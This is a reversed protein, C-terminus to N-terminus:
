KVFVTTAKSGVRKVFIGNEPNDVRIGQLNYYVAEADTDAAVSAIGSTSIQLTKNEYNFIFTVDEFDQAVTCNSGQKTLEYVVGAEMNSAGGYDITSWNADAVKFEDGVSVSVGSLTYVIGDSSSFMYNPDASWNNMTGLLYIEYIEGKPEETLITVDMWPNDPIDLQVEFQYDGVYPLVNNADGQVLPYSFIEGVDFSEVGGDVYYAAANFEDWSTTEVTSFKFSSANTLKFSYIGNTGPVEMGPLNWTLGDADGVVYIAPAYEVGPESGAPIVEVKTITTNDGVIMVSQIGSKILAADEANIVFSLVGAEYFTLVGEEVNEQDSYSTFYTQTWDSNLSQLKFCGYEGATTMQYSVKMTAGEVAQSLSAVQLQVANSWWDIAQEGEWIVPDYDMGGVLYAAKLVLTPNETLSSCQIYIQMVNESYDLNFLAVAESDGQSFSASENIENGEADKYQIVIQGGINCEEFEINVTDYDSLDVGGLWWGRGTWDGEYTITHTAADYTSSWGSGLDDLGLDLKTEASAGLAMAAVAATMLLNKVM